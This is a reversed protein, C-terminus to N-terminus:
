SNMGYDSACKVTSELCFVHLLHGSVSPENSIPSWNAGQVLFAATITQKTDKGKNHWNPESDEWLMGPTYELAGSATTVVLQFTHILIQEVAYM